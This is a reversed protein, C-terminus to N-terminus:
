DTGKVAFISSCLLWIARTTLTLWTISSNVTFSIDIFTFRVRTVISSCASIAYVTVSAIACNAICPTVTFSVNIFTLRIRTLISSCAIITYVTVSADTCIIICPIITSTADVTVRIRTIIIFCTYTNLIIVLTYTFKARYSFITFVM